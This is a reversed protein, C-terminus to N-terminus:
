GARDKKSTISQLVEASSKATRTHIVVDGDRTPVEIGYEEFKECIAFNLESRLSAPRTIYERTWVRLSFVLSQGAFEEFLVEPPPQKLVGSHAEAIELLVKRVVKPNASYSVGVQFIFACKRDNYTWNHVKSTIFESNPIIVVINDDTLLRTARLSVKIVDGIADGVQIRDGVRVPREFMIILGSVLNNMVGQLGFGLGIGFAGALVTLASLDIGGAQLIAILGITTLVFRVVTGLLERVGRDVRRRALVKGVLWGRFHGTLYILLVSFIVIYLVTWVTLRTRGLMFLQFDLIEHARGLLWPLSDIFVKFPHLPDM